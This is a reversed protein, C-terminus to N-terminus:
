LEGVDCKIEEVLYQVVDKSGVECACHLPTKNDKDRVDTTHVNLVLSTLVLLGKNITAVRNVTRTAPCVRPVPYLSVSTTVFIRRIVVM